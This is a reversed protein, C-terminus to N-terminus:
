ELIRICNGGDAKAQYMARDARNVLDELSLETLIMSAVGISFSVQQQLEFTDRLNAMIRGAATKAGILNTEPLVVIFEDGGWRCVLDISRLTATLSEATALLLADGAAHTGCANWKRFDDIDVFLVTLAHQHRKAREIEERLRLEGGRRNLIGTVWDMTSVAELECCKATLEAIRLNLQQIDNNPM